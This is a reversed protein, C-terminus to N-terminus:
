CVALSICASTLQGSCDAHRSRYPIEATRYLFRAADRYRAVRHIMKLLNRRESSGMRTNPVSSFMQSLNSNRSLQYVAEVIDCLRQETQHKLWVDTIKVVAKAEGRFDSYKSDLSASIDELLRKITQKPKKTKHPAFRLRERIRLSCM